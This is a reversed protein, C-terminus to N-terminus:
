AAPGTAFDPLHTDEGVIASAFQQRTTYLSGRLDAGLLSTGELSAGLLSAGRISSNRVTANDLRAATLNASELDAERLRAETLDCGVFEAHRLSAGWFDARSLDAGSFGARDLRAYRFDAGALHAGNLDLSQEESEWDQNRQGIVTLVAQVDAAPRIPCGNATRDRVFACLVQMVPWHDKRSDRAIRALAYIGGLRIELKDSGFHEIAKNFRETIQGEQSIRVTRSTFYLGALVLAGGVIQAVTTLINTEAALRDKPDKIAAAASRWEPVRQLLVFFVGLALALLAGAGAYSLGRHFLRSGFRGRQRGPRRFFPALAPNPSAM